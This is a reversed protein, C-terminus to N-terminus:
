RLETSGVAIENGNFFHLEPVTKCTPRSLKTKKELYSFELLRNKKGTESTESFGSTGNKTHKSRSSLQFM